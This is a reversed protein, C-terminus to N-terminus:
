CNIIQEAKMIKQEVDLVLFFGFLKYLVNSRNSCSNKWQLSIYHLSSLHSFVNFM